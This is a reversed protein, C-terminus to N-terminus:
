KELYSLKYKGIQIEDGDSLPHSEIRRRNVYTGNLSGLDDIYLSDRRRVLLAHNRSVTVDDLFVGADPSRGISVRDEAITFSEGARGGGARIVLAAGSREVAEDIDIPQMEGTEDVTYTMTTPEDKGESPGALYAGCKQCYNAGEPNVFGCDPCHPAM